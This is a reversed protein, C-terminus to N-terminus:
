IRRGMTPFNIVTVLENTHYAVSSIPLLIPINYLQLITRIKYLDKTSPKGKIAIYGTHRHGACSSITEFGAQNLDLIVDEIEEDVLSVPNTTFQQVIRTKKGKHLAEWIPKGQRDEERTKILKTM